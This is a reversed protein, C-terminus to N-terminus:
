PRKKNDRKAHKPTLRDVQTQLQDVKATLTDIKALLQAMDALQQAEQTTTAQETRSAVFDTITSTLLGIFGVGGVMLFSAIIKGVATHPTEDGYGVTTATTIAWWLSNALSQKETLSFLFASLVIIAVSISFLYIFGTKYIFRHYAQTWKGAIGWRWFLHHFRMLRVLRALRFFAFVPHLPIIGLLDFASQILFIKRNKTILLRVLYDVAFIALLGNALGLELSRNGVKLFILCVNFVSGLTLTTVGVHYAILGASQKAM